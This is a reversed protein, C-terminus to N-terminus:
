DETNSTDQAEIPLTKRSSHIRFGDPVPKYEGDISSRFTSQFRRLELFDIESVVFFDEIGGKIRAVDRLWARKSPARIRSDGLIRNNSQAIFAHIDLASAEVISSFSDIDQNWEPVIVADVAGCLQSRYGINTLESCILIAFHFVGHRIVPKIPNKDISRLRLGGVQWLNAEEHLAPRRKEQRFIISTPFGVFDTVLSSWVQNAVCNRKHHIYEVGAILSIGRNALKSSIRAFWHLPVSLEPLLLYHPRSPCSIVSNVLRNIRTYRLDDPERMKKISAVWSETKTEFCGLALKIRKPSKEYPINLVRLPFKRRTGGKSLKPKILTPIKGLARFGRFAVAWDDILKSNNLWRSTLMFLESIEFPRTPFIFAIPPLGRSGNTVCKNFARVNAIPLSQSLSKELKYKTSRGDRWTRHHGYPFCKMRFPRRALDRIFFQRSMEFVDELSLLEANQTAVLSELRDLINSVESKDNEHLPSIASVVAEILSKYLCKSWVSIILDGTYNQADIGAISINCDSELQAKTKHVRDILLRASQYDQSSIALSLLRPLYNALEFFKPLTLLHSCVTEFFSKRQVSWASPDLDQEFAEFDRLYIAFSARGISLADAKRLNDVAKGDVGCVSLLEASLATPDRPLDPAMQWQSAQKNIQSRISKLISLGSQEQLFFIKQKEGMFCLDSKNLYDASVRIVLSDNPELKLLSESRAVIFNWVAKANKFGRKNDLALLIDDVYRGYYIPSLEAQLVRDVEALAVNAILRSSSLGVPLGISAEPAPAPASSNWIRIADIIANTFKRDQNSLKDTLGHISLYRPELLFTPDVNHFFRRLDATIAIVKKNESLANRIANLGNERWEQYPRIYPQFLGTSLSNPEGLIKSTDSHKRRLRAGYAESGLIADFKHGVKLIWLASIVHFNISLNGVIRFEAKPPHNIDGSAINWREDPDSHLSYPASISPFHTQSIAKPVVSWNGLFNSDQMWLLNTSTLKKFLTGLNSNLNQEYSCLAILNPHNHDYFIDAKAKRYAIGLEEATFYESM